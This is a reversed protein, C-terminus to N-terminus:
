TKQQTNNTGVRDPWVKNTHVSKFESAAMRRRTKSSKTANQRERAYCCLALWHTKNKSATVLACMVIGNQSRTRRDAEARVRDVAVPARNPGKAKALVGPVAIELAVGIRDLITM